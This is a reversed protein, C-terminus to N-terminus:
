VAISREWSSYCTYYLVCYNTYSQKKKTQKKLDYSRSSVLDKPVAIHLPGITGAWINSLGTYPM